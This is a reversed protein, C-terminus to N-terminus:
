PLAIVAARWRDRGQALHFWDVGWGVEKLNIKINNEWIHRPIGLPRRGESRGEMVRYVGRREGIRAVHGAQRVRRPKIVQIINPSCYLDNLEGKCLRRREGTVEDRTPGCMRRLVRNEFLRLRREEV